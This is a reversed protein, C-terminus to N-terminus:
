CQSLHGAGWLFLTIVSGILFVIIAAAGRGMPGLDRRSAFGLVATILCAQPIAVLAPAPRGPILSRIGVLSGASTVM